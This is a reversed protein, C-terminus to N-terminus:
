GDALPNRLLGQMAAGCLSLAAGMLAACLVRPLRLSLVIARHVGEAPADGLMGHWLLALSERLPVNVSGLCVCCILVAPLLAAM